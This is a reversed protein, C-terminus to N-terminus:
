LIKADNMGEAMIRGETAQSELDKVLPDCNSGDPLLRTDEDGIIRM